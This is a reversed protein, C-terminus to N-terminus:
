FYAGAATSIEDAGSKPPEVSGPLDVLPPASYLDPEPPASSSSVLDDQQTTAASALPDLKEFDSDFNNSQLDDM